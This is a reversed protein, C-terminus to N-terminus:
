RRPTVDVGGVVSMDASMDVSAGAPVRHGSVPGHGRRRSTQPGEGGVGVQEQPEAGAAEVPEGDVGLVPRDVAGCEVRDAPGQRIGRGGQDHAHGGNIRRPDPGGEIGTSGGDDHRRDGTDRIGDARSARGAVRGLAVAAPARERRHPSAAGRLGGGGVGVHGTPRQDLGGTGEGVDVRDGGGGADVTQEDAGQVEGQGQPGVTSPSSSSWSGRPGIATITAAAARWPMRTPAKAPDGAAAARSRGWPM